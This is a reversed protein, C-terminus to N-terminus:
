AEFKKFHFKPLMSLDVSYKLTCLFVKSSGTSLYKSRVSFNLYTLFEQSFFSFYVRKGLCYIESNNLYMLSFYILKEVFKKFNYFVIPKLLFFFFLNYPYAFMHIIIHM